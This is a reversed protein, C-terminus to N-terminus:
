VYIFQIATFLCNQYRVRHLHTLTLCRMRGLRIEALPFVEVRYSLRLARSAKLRIVRRTMSM